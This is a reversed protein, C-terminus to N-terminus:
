IAVIGADSYWIDIVLVIFIKLKVHMYYVLDNRSKDNLGYQCEKKGM